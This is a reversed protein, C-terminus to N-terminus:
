PYRLLRLNKIPSVRIVIPSHYAFCHFHNLCLFFVAASPFHTFFVLVFLVQRCIGAHADHEGDRYGYSGGHTVCQIFPKVCTWVQQNYKGEVSNGGTKPIQVFHSFSHTVAISFFVLEWNILRSILSAMTVGTIRMIGM